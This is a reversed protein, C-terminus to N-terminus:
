YIIYSNCYLYKKKKPFKKIILHFIVITKNYTKVLFGLAHWYLKCSFYLSVFTIFFKFSVFFHVLFGIKGVQIRDEPLDTKLSLMERSFITSFFYFLLSTPAPAFPNLLWLLLFYFAPDGPTYMRTTRRRSRRRWSRWNTPPSSRGVSM